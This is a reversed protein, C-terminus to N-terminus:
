SKQVSQKPASLKSARKRRMSIKQAVSLFLLRNAEGMRGLHRRLATLYHADKGSSGWPIEKTSRQGALGPLAPAKDSDYFLQYLPIELAGAFKELTEISPITHGNEVRSLYGRLLGTRDQMDKQSLRKAIRFERIRDGIIM